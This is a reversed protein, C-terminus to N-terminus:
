HWFLLYLSEFVSCSCVSLEKNSDFMTLLSCINPQAALTKWTTCVQLASVSAPFNWAVFWEDFVTHEKRLANATTRVLESLRFCCSSNSAASISKCLQLYFTYLSCRLIVYLITVRRWLIILGCHSFTSTPCSYKTDIKM